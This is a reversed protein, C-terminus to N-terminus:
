LPAGLLYVSASRSMLPLAPQLTCAVATCFTVIGQSAEATWRWGKTAGEKM